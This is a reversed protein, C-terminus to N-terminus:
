ENVERIWNHMLIGVVMSIAISSIAVGGISFTVFFLGLMTSMIIFAKKNTNLNIESDLVQNIANIVVSGYLFLLAGGFAESPLSLILSSFPKILSLIIFFLGTILITSKKKYGTIYIASTNESYTTACGVSMFGNLITAIGNAFITRGFGVERDVDIDLVEGVLKVDGINEFIASLSVLSITLFSELNFKPIVFGINQVEVPTFGNMIFYVASSVAIAIPLSFLRVIGKTKFEVFLMVCMSILGILLNNTILSTSIPILSLGILIIGFSMIYKPVYSLLKFKSVLISLICYMVGALIVGGMAYSVDYKQSIALISSVYLGSVGLCSMLKRKTLFFFLITNVGTMLLASSINLGMLATVTVLSTINVLMFVFGMGIDKLTTNKFLDKM